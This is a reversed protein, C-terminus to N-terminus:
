RLAVALSTFADFSLLLLLLLAESMMEWIERIVEGARRRVAAIVGRGADAFYFSLCSHNGWPWGLM